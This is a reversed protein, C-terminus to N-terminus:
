SKGKPAKLKVVQAATNGINKELLQRYCPTALKVTEQELALVQSRCGRSCSKQGHNTQRFINNCNICIRDGLPIRCAEALMKRLKNNTANIQRCAVCKLTDPRKAGNRQRIPVSCIICPIDPKTKSFGDRRCKHCRRHRAVNSFMKGCEACISM